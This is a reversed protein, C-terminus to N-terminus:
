FETEITRFVEFIEENTATLSFRDLYENAAPEIDRRGFEYGYPSTSADEIFADKAAIFGEYAEKLFEHNRVFGLGFVKTHADDHAFLYGAAAIVIVNKFATQQDM